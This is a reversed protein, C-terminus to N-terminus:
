RTPLTLVPVARPFTPGGALRLDDTLLAADLQEALAVYVADAASMNHRRAWAPALLPSVAARRLKWRELRDIASDARSPPLTRSVVSQHRLVGIVEVFFHEPVWLESDENILRLLARGRKTAAIMEAGASADIVIRTV